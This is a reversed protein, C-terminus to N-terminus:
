EHQHPVQCEGTVAWCDAHHRSHCVRCVVVGRRDNPEVRVLCYPCYDEAVGTLRISPRRRKGPRPVRLQPRARRAANQRAEAALKAVQGPLRYLWRSLGLNEWGNAARASQERWWDVARRWPARRQGAPAPVRARGARLALWACSAGVTWQGLGRWDPRPSSLDFPGLGANGWTVVGLALLGVTLGALAAVSRTLVPRQRLAWRAALGAALGLGAAAALRLASPLITRNVLFACAFVAATLFVFPFVLAPWRPLRFHGPRSASDGGTPMVEYPETLVAERAM